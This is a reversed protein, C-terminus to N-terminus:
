LFDGSIYKALGEIKRDSMSPASNVELVYGVGDKGLVADVACFHLLSALSADRSSEKVSKPVGAVPIHIFRWGNSYNRILYSKIKEAPVKIAAEIIKNKYCLLRFEEDVDIIEQVYMNHRLLETAADATKVVNFNRGKMHYFPRAIVPFTAMHITTTDYLNPCSVGRNLLIRRFSFKNAVGSIASAFNIFPPFDSHAVSNGYRVTFDYRPLGDRSLVDGRAIRGGLEKALKTATKIGHKSAIIVPQGM